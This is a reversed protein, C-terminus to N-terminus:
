FQEELHKFAVEAEPLLETQRIYCHFSCTQAERTISTQPIEVVPQSIQGRSQGGSKCQLSGRDPRLTIGPLGWVVSAGTRQTQSLYQKLCMGMAEANQNAKDLCAQAQCTAPRCLLLYKGEQASQLMILIEQLCSQSILVTSELFCSYFKIYYRTREFNFCVFLCVLEM